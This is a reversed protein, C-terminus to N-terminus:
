LGVAQLAARMQDVTMGSVWACTALAAFVFVFARVAM